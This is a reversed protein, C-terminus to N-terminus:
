VLVDGVGTDSTDVALTFPKNFDSAMLVSAHTLLGKVHDIM